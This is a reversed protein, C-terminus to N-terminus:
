VRRRQFNRFVLLLLGFALALPVVWGALGFFTRVTTNSVTPTTGLETDGLTTDGFANGSGLLTETSTLSNGATGGSKAIAIMTDGTGRKAYVTPHETMAAAYHTGATCGRLRIACVRNALSADADAGIKVNGNVNTLTTQFTYVKADLTVTEANGVNEALTLTGKAQVGEQAATSADQDLGGIYSLFLLAVFSVMLVALLKGATM